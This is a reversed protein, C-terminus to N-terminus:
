YIVVLRGDSNRIAVQHTLNFPARDTVVSVLYTNLVQRIKGVLLGGDSHQEIWQQVIKHAEVWENVPLDIVGATVAPAVWFVCGSIDADLTRAGAEPDQLAAPTRVILAGDELTQVQWGKDRLADALGGFSVGSEVAPDGAPAGLELEPLGSDPKGIAGETDLPQDTVSTDQQQPPRFVLTGDAEEEVRWDHALLREKLSGSQSAPIAEGSAAPETKEAPPRLTLTGDDARQTSWGARVLEQELSLALQAVAPEISLVGLLPLATCVIRWTAQSRSRRQMTSSM